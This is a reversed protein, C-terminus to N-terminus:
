PTVSKKPLMKLVWAWVEMMEELRFFRCIGVYLGGVLVICTTLQLLNNDISRTTFYALVCLVTSLLFYPFCDKVMQWLTYGVIKGSLLLSLLMAVFSSIVLGIALGIVGKDITLLIMGVLVVKKLIEVYLVAKSRGKALVSEQLVANFATFIGSFCLIQFIPVSELWKVTVLFIILPKAILIVGFMVPFGVFAVTRMLKGLIRKLREDEENLQSLLPVSVARFTNSILGSPIDQYKSAFNFFGLQAVNYFRGIILSYINTFAANILNTFMVRSGFPFLDKLVKRQFSGGPRFKGYKWCFVVKFFSLSVTQIVLSWVGLGMLAAAAALISTPILAFINAKASSNLDMRLNLVIEQVVFLANLPISLFLVRSLVVLEPQRFFSAILPAAFFLLLYFLLSTGVNYLFITQLEDQSARKQNIIARGYGSGIIAISIASFFMLSGVLGYDSSTLARGLIIGTAFYLIQQGFKDIFSWVLATTTKQKLTKEM